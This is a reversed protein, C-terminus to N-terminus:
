SRIFQRWATAIEETSVVQGYHEEWSQLVGAHAVESDCALADRAFVPSYGLAFGHAATDRVCVDSDVGAWILTRIGLRRLIGDLPTHVFGDYAYKTIVIEEDLPQLEDVFDAGWTGELVCSPPGWFNHWSEANRLLDNIVRTHIVTVDVERATSLLLQCPALIPKIWCNTKGWQRVFIGEDHVFDNQMDVMVLATRCPHVLTSLETVRDPIRDRWSMYWDKALTSSESIPVYTIGIWLCCGNKAMASSSRRQELVSSEPSRVRVHISSEECM